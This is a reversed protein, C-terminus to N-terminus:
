LIAIEEGHSFNEARKHIEHLTNNKKNKKKM